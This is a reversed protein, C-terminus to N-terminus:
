PAGRPLAGRLLVSVLQEALARPEPPEQGEMTPFVLGQAFIGSVLALALADPDGPALQGRCMAAGLADALLARTGRERQRVGRFLERLGQDPGFALHLMARNRWIQSLARATFEVLKGELDDCLDLHRLSGRPTREEAFARILGDRDGFHRYLTALSVGASEAIREMTAGSPGHQLFCAMLADLARDRASTEEPATLGREQALASLLAERSPFRRFLTSRSVGATAAIEDMSPDGGGRLLAEAADLLAARAQSDQPRSMSILYSM